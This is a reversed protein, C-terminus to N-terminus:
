RYSTFFVVIRGPLKVMVSFCNYSLIFRMRVVTGHGNEIPECFRHPYFTVRVFNRSEGATFMEHYLHIGCHRSGYEDFAWFRLFHGVVIVYHHSVLFIDSVGTESAM